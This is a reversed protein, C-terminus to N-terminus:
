KLHSLDSISLPSSFPHRENLVRVWIQCDPIRAKQNLKMVRYSKNFSFVTLQHSGPDKLQYKREVSCFVYGFFILLRIFDLYVYVNGYVNWGRPCPFMPVCSNKNLISKKLKLYMGRWLELVSLDLIFVFLKCVSVEFNKVTKQKENM